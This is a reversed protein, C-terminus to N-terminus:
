ERAEMPQKFMASSHHHEAAGFLETPAAACDSDGLFLIGTDHLYRHLIGYARHKSSTELRCLLNRCFIVDYPQAASRLNGDLLNGQQFYVSARVPPTVARQNGRVQFYRSMVAPDQQERFSREDYLGRLARELAHHSVDLSDIRFQDPTFGAELLTIAISYPEEGTACPASLVNLYRTGSSRRSQGWQKLAAFQTADRFFWTEPVVALAILQKLEGPSQQLYEAYEHESRLRCASMRQVVAARIVATSTSASDLGTHSQLLQRIRTLSM